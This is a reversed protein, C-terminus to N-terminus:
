AVKCAGLFHTCVVEDLNAWTEVKLKWYDEAEKRAEFSRGCFRRSSPPKNDWYGVAFEGTDKQVLQWVGYYM